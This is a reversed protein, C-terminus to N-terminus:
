CRKHDPVPESTLLAPEEIEAGPIMAESRDGRERVEANKKIEPTRVYFTALSAAGEGNRGKM